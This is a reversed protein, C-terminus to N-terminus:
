LNMFQVSQINVLTKYSSSLSGVGRLTQYAIQSRLKLAKLCRKLILKSELPTNQSLFYYVFSFDILYFLM